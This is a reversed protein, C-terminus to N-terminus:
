PSFTLDLERFREFLPGSPVPLPSAQYIAAIVSQDFATNGSGRVVRVSGPVVEGGPILRVSIVTALDRGSAPPRIWFQRVRDRIVPVYRDTERALQETARSSLPDGERTRQAEEAALRRQEGEALRRAEQQIREQALEEILRQEELEALQRAEEAIRRQREAEALARREAELAAAQREAELRRAEELAAQREAEARAEAEAARRREEARRELEARRKAELRAAEAARREAEARSRAGAAAIEAARREAELREAEVQRALEARREAEAREIAEREADARAEAEAALREAEIRAAEAIEVPDSEEAIAPKDARGEPQGESLEPGAGRRISESEITGVMAELAADSIVTAQVVRAKSGSETLPREIEVGVFFLLAFVVHVGLSWYLARPNRRLIQWM